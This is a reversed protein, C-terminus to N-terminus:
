RSVGRACRFGFMLNGLLDPDVKDRLSARVSGSESFTGGRYVRETGREPGRPDTQADSSYPAYWDSVWEWVNGALDCVGEPTNGAPKSCVPATNGNLVLGEVVARSATPKEEGWPFTRGATGRASYEWEAETPLRKDVWECYKVAYDWPLCNIPHEQRDRRTGNCHKGSFLTGADDVAVCKGAAVCRQYERVTVEHKDLYFASLTVRHAPKELEGHNPGMMRDVWNERQYGNVSGMMFTGAHILVMGVPPPPPPTAARAEPEPESVPASVPLAPSKSAPPTAPVENPVDPEDRHVAPKLATRGSCCVITLAIVAVGVIGALRPVRM